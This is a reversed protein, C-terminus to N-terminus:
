CGRIRSASALWTLLSCWRHSRFALLTVSRTLSARVFDNVVVALTSDMMFSM